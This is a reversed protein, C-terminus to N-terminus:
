STLEYCTQPYKQKFVGQQTCVYQGNVNFEYAVASYRMGEHFHDIECVKAMLYMVDKKCKPLGSLIATSHKILVTLDGVFLM